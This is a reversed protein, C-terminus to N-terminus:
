REWDEEDEHEEEIEEIMARRFLYDYTDDQEKPFDEHKEEEKKKPVVVMIHEKEGMGGDVDGGDGAGSHKKRNILEDLTVRDGDLICVTNNIHPSTVDCERMDVNCLSTYVFYPQDLLMGRMNVRDWTSTYFKASESKSYSFDCKVVNCETFDTKDFSCSRFLADDLESHTLDVGDFNSGTFDLPRKGCSIFSTDYLTANRFSCDRMQCDIFTVHSMDAKSFDSEDFVCNRFTACFLNTGSFNSHPFKVNEFEAHTLDKNSFDLYRCEERRKSYSKMNSFVARFNINEVRADLYLQHNEIIADINKQTVVTKKGM